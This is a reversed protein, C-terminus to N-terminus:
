SLARCNSRLRPEGPAPIAAAEAGLIATVGHMGIIAAGAIASIVFTKM